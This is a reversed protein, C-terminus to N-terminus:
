DCAAAAVAAAIQHLFIKQQLCLIFCIRATTKLIKIQVQSTAM